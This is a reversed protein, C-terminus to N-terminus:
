NNIVGELEKAKAESKEIGLGERYCKILNKKGSLSGKQAAANFLIFAQEEDKDFGKGYLLCVGLLVKADLNGQSSSKQLYEIATECNQKM